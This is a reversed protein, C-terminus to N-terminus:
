RGEAGRQADGIAAHERQLVPGSRRAHRQAALHQEHVPEALMGPAVRVQRLPQAVPTIRHAAVVEVAVAMGASRAPVERAVQLMQLM